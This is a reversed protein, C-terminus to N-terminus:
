ASSIMIYIEQKGSYNSQDTMPETNNSDNCLTVFSLIIKLENSHSKKGNSRQELNENEEEEERSVGGPEKKM